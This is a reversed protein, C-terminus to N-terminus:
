GGAGGAVYDLAEPQLTTAAAAELEAVPVPVAQKEGTLMASYIQMQRSQIKTQPTMGLSASIAKTMTERLTPTPHLFTLTSPSQCRKTQRPLYGDWFLQSFESFRVVSRLVFSLQPPVM